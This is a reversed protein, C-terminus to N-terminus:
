GAPETTRTMGHHRAVLGDPLPDPSAILVTATSKLLARRVTEVGQRDLDALPEDLLLIDPQVALARVLAIRRREGGSLGATSRAALAIVDFDALLRRAIDLRRHRPVGRAALGYTVNFLVSGRFLYPAQHVYVRQRSPANVTCKGSHERELGAIVRLLTTKGSGNPGVIGIREGAAVQLEPVSCITRGSKRVTLERIDIIASM